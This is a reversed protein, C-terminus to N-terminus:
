LKLDIDHNMVYNLNINKFVNVIKEVLDPEEPKPDTPIYLNRIDKKFLRVTDVLIVICLPIFSLVMLVMFFRVFPSTRLFMFMASLCFMMVTAATFMQKVRKYVKKEDDQFVIASNRKGYRWKLRSVIYILLGSCAALVLWPFYVFVFPAVFVPGMYKSLDASLMFFALINLLSVFGVGVVDTRRLNMVVLTFIYMSMFYFYKFLNKVYEENNTFEEILITRSYLLDVYKLVFLTIPNKGIVSIIKETWYIILEYCVPNKGTSCDFIFKLSGFIIKIYFFIIGTIIRNLISLPNVM